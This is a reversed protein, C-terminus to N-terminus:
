QDSTFCDFPPPCLHDGGLDIYLYDDEQTVAGAGKKTIRIKLLLTVRKKKNEVRPMKKLYRALVIAMQNGGYTKQLDAFLTLQRQGLQVGDTKKHNRFLGDYNDIMEEAVAAPITPLGANQGFVDQKSVFFVLLLSCFVFFKKM